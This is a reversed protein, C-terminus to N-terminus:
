RHFCIGGSALMIDNNPSRRENQSILSISQEKERCTRPENTTYLSGGFVPFDISSRIKRKDKGWMQQISLQMMTSNRTIGDPAM